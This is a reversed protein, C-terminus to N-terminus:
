PRCAGLELLDQVHVAPVGKNKQVMEQGAQFAFSSWLATVRGRKDVIVGDVDGPGNVLSLGELNTERFRM